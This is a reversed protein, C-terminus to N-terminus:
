TTVSARCRVDCSNVPARVPWRSARIEKLLTYYSDWDEARCAFEPIVIVDDHGSRRLATPFLIRGYVKGLVGFPVISLAKLVQWM